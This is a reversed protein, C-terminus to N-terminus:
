HDPQLITDHFISNPSDNANTDCTKEAQQSPRNLESLLPRFLSLRRLVAEVQTTRASPSCASISRAILFIEEDKSLVLCSLQCSTSANM